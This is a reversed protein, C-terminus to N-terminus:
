EVADAKFDALMQLDGVCNRLPVTFDGAAAKAVDCLALLEKHDALYAVRQLHKKVIPRHEPFEQM